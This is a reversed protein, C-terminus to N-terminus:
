FWKPGHHEAKPSSSRVSFDGEDPALIIEPDLRRLLEAPSPEVDPDCLDEIPVATTKACFGSAAGQHLM